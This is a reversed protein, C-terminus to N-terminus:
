SVLGFIFSLEVWHGDNWPAIWITENAKENIRKSPQESMGRDFRKGYHTLSLVWCVNSDHKSPWFAYWWTKNKIKKLNSNNGDNSCVSHSPFLAVMMKARCKNLFSSRPFNSFRAFDRLFLFNHAFNFHIQIAKSFSLHQIRAKTYCLKLIKIKKFKLKNTRKTESEKKKKFMKFPTWRIRNTVVFNNILEIKNQYKEVVWVGWFFSSILSFNALHPVFICFKWANFKKKTQEKTRENEISNISIITHKLLHCAGCM